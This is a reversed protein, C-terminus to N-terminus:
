LKMGRSKQDAIEDFMDMLAIQQTPTIQACEKFCKLRTLYAIKTASDEESLDNEPYAQEIQDAVIALLKNAKTITPNSNDLHYSAYPTFSTQAVSPKTPYHTLSTNIDGAPKVSTIINGLIVPEGKKIIAHDLITTQITQNTPTTSISEVPLSQLQDIYQRITRMESPPLFHGRWKELHQEADYKSQSDPLIKILTELEKLIAKNASTAPPLSKFQQLMATTSTTSVPPQNVDERITILVDGHLNVVKTTKEPDVRSSYNGSQVKGISIIAGDIKAGQLISIGAQNKNM